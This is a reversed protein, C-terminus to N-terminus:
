SVRVLHVANGDITGDLGAPGLTLRVVNDPFVGPPRDAAQGVDTCSIASCVCVCSDRSSPGRM